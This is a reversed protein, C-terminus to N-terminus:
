STLHPSPSSQVPNIHSLSRSLHRARTFATIFRVAVYFARFKKVLQPGTLKEPFDTRWRYMEHMSHELTASTWLGNMREPIFTVSSRNRCCRGSSSWKAWDITSNIYFIRSTSRLTLIPFMHSCTLPSGHINRRNCTNRRSNSALYMVKEHRSHLCLYMSSLPFRLCSSHFCINIQSINLGVSRSFETTCTQLFHTM